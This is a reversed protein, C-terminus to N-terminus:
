QRSTKGFFCSVKNHKPLLLCCSATSHRMFHKVGSVKTQSSQYKEYARDIKFIRKLTIKYSHMRNNLGIDKEWAAHCLSIRENTRSYFFFAVTSPEQLYRYYITQPCLPM